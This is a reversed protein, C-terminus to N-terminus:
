KGLEKGIKGLFEGLQNRLNRTLPKKITSLTKNADAFPFSSDSPLM